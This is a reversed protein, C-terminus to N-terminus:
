KQGGTWIKQTPLDLPKTKLGEQELWESMTSLFFKESERHGLELVMLGQRAGDLQAHYGAEGTIFLDCGARVAAGVFSAGKGAVFGLRRIRKSSTQKSSPQSVWFGDVKFLRKVDRAVEAFSKAKPLDGWFGYGLGRVPGLVPPSQEVPYLDYAVEEYPHAQLMAKLVDRQLGRPLVTELRLEEARELVGPKGLFPQTHAGGRFTGEGRVGFTCSDYQGINGAGAACLAERVSDAHSVPVFVVLKLLTDKGSELLRGKPEVGLGKSIATVVELSCQDFNTHSAIVSLGERIARHVLRSSSGSGPGGATVRSLGRSKPFICPHHNVILRWKKALAADIAEDTLDVSVVAGSTEDDPDGALLGVNDWDEATGGPARRELAELIKGIKM